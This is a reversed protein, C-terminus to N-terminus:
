GSGSDPSDFSRAKVRLINEIKKVIDNECFPKIMYGTAGSSIARMVSERDKKQSIMLFPINKTKENKRVHCLLEDGTMHSVGRDALIIDFKTKQLIKWAEAGDRCPVIEECPFKNKFIEKLNILMSRSNDVLLVNFKKDSRM